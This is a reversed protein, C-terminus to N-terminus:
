KRLSKEILEIRSVVDELKSSLRYEVDAIEEPTVTNAPGRIIGSRVDGFHVDLSQLQETIAHVKRLPAAVLKQVEAVRREVATTVNSELRKLEVALREQMKVLSKARLPENVWKFGRMFQDITITGAGDHDLWEFLEALDAVKMNTNKTLKRILDPSRLM